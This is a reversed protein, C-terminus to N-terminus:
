VTVRFGDSLQSLAADQLVPRHLFAKSPEQKPPSRNGPQAPRTPLGKRPARVHPSLMSCSQAKRLGPIRPTSPSATLVWSPPICHSLPLSRFATSARLAGLEGLLTQLFIQLSLCLM